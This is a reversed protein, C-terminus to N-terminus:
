CGPVLFCMQHSCPRASSVFHQQEIRRFTPRPSGASRCRSSVGTHEDCSGSILRLPLHSLLSLEAAWKSPSRGCPRCRLNPRQKHQTFDQTTPNKKMSFREESETTDRWRKISTGDPQSSNWVWNVSSVRTRGTTNESTNRAPRGWVVVVVGVQGEPQM